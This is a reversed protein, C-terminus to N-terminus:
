SIVACQEMEQRLPFEQDLPVVARITTGQRPASDIHVRGRLLRAREDMSLLGLGDGQRAEAVNFGQGDDTVTLELGDGNQSLSAQVSQAHAHLAINHQAEQAIRFVCLAVEMPLGELKGDTHFAVDIGHLRGFEAFSGRLAAALGAHQLVGPHLEHSLRRVDESLEITQQQLRRIEGEADTASEPLKRRLTSFAISLAALQQSFNDHLERAIRTRENEQATILKGALDQVQAYSAKLARATQRREAMLAALVQAPVSMALLFLQLSLFNQAPLDTVFPGRERLAGWIALGAIVLICASTGGPGFRVAAWLLFPLPAYLRAPLASSGSYKGAFLLIGVTLLGTALFGAELIRKPRLGKVWVRANTIAVVIMPLLMLGTLANSFCWAQWVLWFDPTGRHLVVVCAGAFGATVPALLVAFLLFTVVGRLSDFRIPGFYWIGGAALMARTVNVVETSLVWSIPWGQVHAFTNGISSALIYIWWRPPPALLLAATLIAYPPFLIATNLGPFGLELASGFYCCVCALGAKLITGDRSNWWGM